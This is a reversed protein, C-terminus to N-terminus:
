SHSIQFYVNDFCWICAHMRDCYITLLLIQASESGYMGAYIGMTEVGRSRFIVGSIPPGLLSGTAPFIMFIGIRRGLDRNTDGPEGTEIVPVTFLAGYSGSSFRDSSTSQESNFLALFLLRVRIDCCRHDTRWHYEYVALYLDDRGDSRRLSHYRKNCRCLTPILVINLIFITWPSVSSIAWCERRSEQQEM